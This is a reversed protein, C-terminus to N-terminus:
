VQDCMNVWRTCTKSKLMCERCSLHKQQSMLEYSIQCNPCTNNFIKMVENSFHIREIYQDFPSTRRKVKVGFVMLTTDEFLNLSIKVGSIVWSYVM